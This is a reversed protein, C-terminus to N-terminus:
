WNRRKQDNAKWRSFADSTKITFYRLKLCPSFLNISHRLQFIFILSKRKKRGEVFIFHFYKGLCASVIFFGEEAEIIPSYALDVVPRSHGSCILPIKKM